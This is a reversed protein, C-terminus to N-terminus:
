KRPYKRPYKVSTKSKKITSPIYPSARKQEELMALIEDLVLINADMRKCIEQIKVGRAKITELDPPTPKKTM